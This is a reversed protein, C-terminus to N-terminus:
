FRQRKLRPHQIFQVFAHQLDSHHRHLLQEPSERSNDTVDRFQASFIHRQFNGSLMRVQVLPNQIRKGLRQCVNHSIRDIM